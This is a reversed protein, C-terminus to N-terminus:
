PRKNSDILLFVQSDITQDQPSFLSTTLHDSRFTPGKSPIIDLITLSSIVQYCNFKVQYDGKQADKNFNSRKKEMPPMCNEHSVLNSQLNAFVKECLVLM